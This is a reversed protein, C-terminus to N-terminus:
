FTATDESHNEKRCGELFDARALFQARSTSPNGSASACSTELEELRAISLTQLIM